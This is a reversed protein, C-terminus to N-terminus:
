LIPQSVSECIKEYTNHKKQRKKERWRMRGNKNTLTLLHLSIETYLHIFILQAYRSAQEVSQKHEATLLLQCQWVYMCMIGHVYEYEYESINKMRVSVIIFYFTIFICVLNDRHHHRRSRSHRSKVHISQM